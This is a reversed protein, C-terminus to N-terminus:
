SVLLHHCSVVMVSAPLWTSVDYIAFKVMETGSVEALQELPRTKDHIVEGMIQQVLWHVSIERLKKEVDVVSLSALLSIATGVTVNDCTLYLM